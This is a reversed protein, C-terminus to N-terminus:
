NRELLQLELDSIKEDKEYMKQELERIEKEYNDIVDQLQNDRFVMEDYYKKANEKLIKINEKNTYIEVKYNSYDIITKNNIGDIYRKLDDLFYTQKYIQYISMKNDQKEITLSLNDTHTFVIKLDKNKSEIYKVNNGTIILDKEMQYKYENVILSKDNLVETKKFDTVAISIMGVGIGFIFLSLVFFLAVREKKYKRTVIFNYLIYLLIYNIFLAAIISIIIGFFLLSIKLMFSTVLLVVLFVFTIILFIAFMIALIKFIFLSVNLLGTIFNYSSNNPDRIIINEKKELIIKEEKKNTEKPEKKTESLVYYDLYRVKFIHFLLLVAIIFITILYFGEFVRYIIDSVNTPIFSTIGRFVNYGIVGIIQFVIALIAILIIQEFICKLKTKFSFSSFMNITKTINNILDDIFKNVSSKAEKKNNIEKVDQNLLEDINLNFLECLQLVKDMEPYATGSEWKSVSQRSVGLQEALQEQSLNHEKRINRLNDSLNM